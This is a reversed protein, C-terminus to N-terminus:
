QGLASGVGQVITTAFKEADETTLVFIMSRPARRGATIAQQEASSKAYELRVSVGGGTLVQGVGCGTLYVPVAAGPGRM